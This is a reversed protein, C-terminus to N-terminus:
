WFFVAIGLFFFLAPFFSMLLRIGLLSTATQAVNAVYGFGDFSPQNEL